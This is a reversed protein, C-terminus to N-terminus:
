RMVRRQLAFYDYGAQLNLGHGASAPYTIAVPIKGQNWKKLNENTKLERVDFKDKIRRLYSKDWYAILVPKGNAGEILDELADLKIDHIRIINKDEEYVSSYAMQLLKNSITAANVADIDKNRISVVLDKKLIDYIDSETDSPNAFVENYIKEIFNNKIALECEGVSISQSIDDVFVSADALIKSDLEQKGAMDAGMCSIHTDPM